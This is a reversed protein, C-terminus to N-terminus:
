SRGPPMPIPPPLSTPPPASPPPMSPLAPAGPPPVNPAPPTGPEPGANLPQAQVPPVAANGSVMWDHLRNRVQYEFEVNMAQMMAKTMDYLRQRLDDTDGTYQRSVRAEAFGARPGTDSPYVNLVVDMNGTITDDQKTLSANQIIFVARGTSGFAKLRDNAMARLADIPPVPDVQTVDPTMGSPFFHQEIEIRAVNLRLPPLRRFSLPPFLRPEGGGCATLLLPLL